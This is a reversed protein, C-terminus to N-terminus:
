VGGYLYLFSYLTVVCIFIMFVTNIVNFAIYGTSEKVKVATDQMKKGGKDKNVM